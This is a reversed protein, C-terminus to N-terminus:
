AGGGPGVTVQRLEDSGRLTYTVQVRLVEDQAQVDVERVVILDGLFQALAGQVLMQTAAALAPSNPAFVLQAAGSGFDPRMVREGPATFLVTEILERVYREDSCEATRGRTDFRFPSSVNM